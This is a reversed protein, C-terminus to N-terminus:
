ERFEGLVKVQVNNMGPDTQGIFRDRTMEVNKETTEHLTLDFRRLLTGLVLYLWAWAMNQGLCGLTGKSAPVLYRELERLEEGALLWREPLFCDPDPFITPDRLIFYTSMSVLTGPPIDWGQFHLTEYPASRPLRTTVVSSIRLGEKIVATLYPLQELTTLDPDISVDPLASRLETRLRRHVESNNLIHFMTIAIVQTPADTGAILLFIADDELRTREKENDPVDTSALITPYIPAWAEPLPPKRDLTQVSESIAHRVRGRVDREMDLVSGFSPCVWGPIRPISHGIHGAQPIHRNLNINLFCNNIWTKWEPTLYPENLYHLGCDRGFAYQSLTDAAFCMFSAHLELVGLTGAATSFHSSLLRLNDKILPEVASVAGKKFFQALVKRRSAHLSHAETSFLSQPWTINSFWPDKDRKNGPGAYLTNYFNPDKIHIEWPTIRVIPGYQEHLENIHWTFRGGKVLQFYAEYLRTAAALRPGPFKSLPSLFLRYIVIATIFLSLIVGISLSYVWLLTHDM